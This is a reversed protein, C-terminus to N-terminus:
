RWTYLCIGYWQITCRQWDCAPIQCQSIDRPGGCAKDCIGPCHDPTTQIDPVACIGTSAHIDTFFGFIFIFLIVTVITINHNPGDFSLEDM